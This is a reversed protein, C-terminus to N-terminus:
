RSRWTPVTSRSGVARVSRTRPGSSTPPTLARAAHGSSRRVRRTDARNIRDRRNRGDRHRLGGRCRGQSGDFRSPVRPDALQDAAIRGIPRARTTGFDDYVAGVDTLFVLREAGLATALLASTHDKDVVAEVGTRRGNDDVRVPIGGGGAAVVIVNADLLEAIAGLELVARPVPSAVVRRYRVPDTQPEIARFTWGHRAALESADAGSVVPGVPKTPEAFAPDDPDVAVQTLIAAVDRGPLVSGIERALVYGLLGDVEANVVDLAVGDMGSATHLAALRGVQPGSGHTVLLPHRGAIEGIAPALEDAVVRSMIGTADDTDRLANGGVAIVVRM